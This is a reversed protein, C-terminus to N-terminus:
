LIPLGTLDWIVPIQPKSFTEDFDAQSGAGPYGLCTGLSWIKPRLIKRKDDFYCTIKHCKQTQQDFDSTKHWFCALKAM